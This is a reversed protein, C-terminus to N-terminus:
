QGEVTVYVGTINGAGTNKVVVLIASAIIGEFRIHTITSDATITPTNKFPIDVVQVGATSTGLLLLETSTLVDGTTPTASEYAQSGTPKAAPAAAQNDWLYVYMITNNGGIATFFASVRIRNLSRAFTVKNISSAGGNITANTLIATPTIPPLPSPPPSYAM